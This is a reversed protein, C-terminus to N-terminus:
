GEEIISSFEMGLNDLRQGSKNYEATTVFANNTIIKITNDIIESTKSILARNIKDLEEIEGILIKINEKMEFLKECNYNNAKAYKIVESLSTNEKNIGLAECLILREKECSNVENALVIIQNDAKELLTLDGAILINRKENYLNKINEYLKIQKEVINEIKNINEEVM